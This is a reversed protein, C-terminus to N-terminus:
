SILQMCNIQKIAKKRISFNQAYKPFRTTWLMNVICRSIFMIRVLQIWAAADHLARSAM